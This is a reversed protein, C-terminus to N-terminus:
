MNFDRTHKRTGGRNTRILVSTRKWGDGIKTIGAISINYWTYSYLGNLIINMQSAPVSVNGSHGYQDKYHIRYGIIIGNRYEKPIHTWSVNAETQSLNFGTVNM